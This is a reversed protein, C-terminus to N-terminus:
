HRAVIKELIFNVFNHVSSRFKISYFDWADIHVYNQSLELFFAVFVSAIIVKIGLESM